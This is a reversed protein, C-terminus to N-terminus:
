DPTRNELWGLRNILGIFAKNLIIKGTGMNIWRLSIFIKNKYLSLQFNDLTKRTNSFISFLYVSKFLKMRLEFDFSLGGTQSVEKGVWDSSLPFYKYSSSDERDWRVWPTFEFHRKWKFCNAKFKSICFSFQLM